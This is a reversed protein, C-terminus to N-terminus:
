QEGPKNGGKPTKGQPEQTNDFPNPPPLKAGLIKIGTREEVQEPDIEYMSGLKTITDIYGAMDLTETNDWEFYYNELPKYVPSLKILRPKIETNFIYKFFLADQEMRDKTLNYQINASGVFAKENNIGTGGLIDKSIEDNAINILEAFPSTGMGTVQPVSLTEQGRAVIFQNSRFNSAMEFLQNLREDDERDTTIFLPPIGYREVYDQYSGIALKKALLIPALRELKGLDNNKGIQVYFNKFIGEKYSWRESGLYGDKERTIYGYKANFFPMPIENVTALEGTDTLEYMELLKRGAWKSMLVLHVLDEKWPRELLWTIDPNETGNDDVLKFARRQVASIRTDICSRLHNDLLLNDYLEDIDAFSPMEPDTAAAVATKWKKLNQARRILHDLNLNPMSKRGNFSTGGGRRMEAEVLIRADPTNKILQESFRNLIKDFINM